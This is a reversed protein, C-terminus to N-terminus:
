STVVRTEVSEGSRAPRIVQEVDKRLANLFPFLLDM